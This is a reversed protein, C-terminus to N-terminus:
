KWRYDEFMYYSGLKKWFDWFRLSEATMCVGLTRHCRRAASKRLWVCGWPETVAGPSLDQAAIRNGAGAVGYLNM